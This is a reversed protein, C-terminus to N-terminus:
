RTHEGAPMDSQILLNQNFGANKARGAVETSLSVTNDSQIDQDPAKQPTWIKSSRGCQRGYPHTGSSNGRPYLRSADLASTLFAHLKIKKEGCIKMAHHNLLYKVFNVSIIRLIGTQIAREQSRIIHTIDLGGIPCEVARSRLKTKSIIYVSLLFSFIALKL